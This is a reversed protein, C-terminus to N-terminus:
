QGAASAPAPEPPPPLPMSAHDMVYIWKGNREAKLDSYRGLIEMPAGEPVAITLKFRGWTVVSDGVPHHHADYLELKTGKMGEAAKAYAERIAAAGKVEMTDPPFSVSSEDYCAAMADPDASNFAALFKADLAKAAEILAAPDPKPPPPPAAPPKACGLLLGTVTLALTFATKM